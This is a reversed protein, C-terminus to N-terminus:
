VLGIEINTFTSLLIDADVNGTTTYPDWGRPYEYEFDGLQARQYGSNRQTAKGSFQDALLLTCAEQVDIPLYTWGFDGIITFDLRDSFFDRQDRTIDHKVDIDYLTSNPGTTYWNLQTPTRRIFNSSNNDIEVQITLDNNFNDVISILKNIGPAIYLADGSDGQTKYTKNIYPGFKQRTYANIIRRVRREFATFSDDKAEYQPYLEFFSNPDAYLLTSEYADIKIATAGTLWRFSHVGISDPTFNYSGSVAANNVLIDGFEHVITLHDAGAPVVYTKQKNTVIEQM